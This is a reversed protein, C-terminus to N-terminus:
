SVKIIGGDADAIVFWSAEIKTKNANDTWVNVRWRNSYVKIAEAKIQNDPFKCIKKLNNLIKNEISSKEKIQNDTREEPEEITKM